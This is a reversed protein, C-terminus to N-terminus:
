PVPTTAVGVRVGVRTPETVGVRVLVGDGVPPTVGPVGVGVREPPPVAVGDGVRVVEDLGALVRAEATLAVDFLMETSSAVLKGFEPVNSMSLSCIVYVALTPFVNTL